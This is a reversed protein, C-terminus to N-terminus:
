KRNDCTQLVLWLRTQRLLLPRCFRKIANTGSSAKRKRRDPRFVQPLRRRRRSSALHGLFIIMTLSSLGTVSQAHCEVYLLKPGFFFFVLLVESFFHYM